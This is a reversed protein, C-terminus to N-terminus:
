TVRPRSDLTALLEEVLLHQTVSQDLGPLACEGREFIDRVIGGIQESFYPFRSLEVDGQTVHTYNFVYDQDDVRISMGSGIDCSPEDILTISKDSAADRLVLRGTVEEYAARKSPLVSSVRTGAAVKLRDIGLHRQFVDIWHVANCALGWGAGSATVSTAGPEFLCDFARSGYMWQNVFTPVRALAVAEDFEAPSAFLYKELIVFRPRRALCQKYLDLRPRCSTAIIFLDIDATVKDLSTTMTAPATLQGSLETLRESRDVLFLQADPLTKTIGQVYRLGINGVGIVCVKV